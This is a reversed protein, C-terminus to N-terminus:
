AYHKHKNKIDERLGKKQYSTISAKVDNKFSDKSPPPQDLLSLPDELGYIQCLHCVHVSWTRSNDHSVSPLFSNSVVHFIEAM